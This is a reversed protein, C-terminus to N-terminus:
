PQYLEELVSLGSRMEDWRGGGMHEVLRSQAEQWYPWARKLAARGADTVVVARTRRDEGTVTEILGQRELLKLNRALTTRDMVLSRALETRSLGGRREIAVLLGAQAIGLGSPALATDYFQTVARAARRVSGCACAAAISVLDSRSPGEIESNM